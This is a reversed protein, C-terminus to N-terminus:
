RKRRELWARFGPESLRPNKKSLDCRFPMGRTTVLLWRPAVGAMAAAEEPLLIRPPAATPTANAELLRLTVRAQLEALRGALVPLHERPVASVDLDIM